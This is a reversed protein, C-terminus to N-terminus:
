LDKTCGVVEQAHCSRRKDVTSHRGPRGVPLSMKQAGPASDNVDSRGPIAGHGRDADVDIEPSGESRNMWARLASSAAVDKGNAEPNAPGVTEAKQKKRNAGALKRKMNVKKYVMCQARAVNSCGDICHTCQWGSNPVSIHEWDGLKYETVCLSCISKRCLGDSINACVVVPVSRSPRCCLHCHASPVPKRYRKKRAASGGAAAGSIGISERFGSSPLPPISMQTARKQELYKSFSSGRAKALARGAPTTPNVLLESKVAPLRNPSLPTESVGPGPTYREMSNNNKDSDTSTVAGSFCDRTGRQLFAPADQKGSNKTLGLGDGNPCLHDAVRGLSSVATDFHARLDPTSGASDDRLSSVIDVFLTDLQGVNSATSGHIADQSHLRVDGQVVAYRGLVEAVDQVFSRGM